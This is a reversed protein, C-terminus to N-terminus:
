AEWGLARERSMEPLGFLAVPDVGAFLHKRGNEVRLTIPTEWGDIRVFFNWQRRHSRNKWQPGRSWSM